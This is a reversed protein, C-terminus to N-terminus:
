AIAVDNCRHLFTSIHIVPVECLCGSEKVRITSTQQCIRAVDM